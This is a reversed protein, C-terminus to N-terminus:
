IHEIVLGGPKTKGRTNRSERFGSNQDNVFNVPWGRHLNLSVTSATTTRMALAWGDAVVHVGTVRPTEIKSSFNTRM